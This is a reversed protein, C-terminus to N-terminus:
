SQPTGASAVAQVFGTGPAGLGTMNDYGPGTSLTVDRTACNGSGNCYTEPGEYNIIRTEVLVGDAANFDNGYDTRAEAAPTSPQTVDYFASPDSTYLSYLTPDLFGLPTGASQEADAFIGALTPSSLSTGGERFQNYHDTNNPFLETEGMLFGNTPDAYASIDPVVRTPVGFIPLNEDAVSAPVVPVQWSPENYYYSAGGGSGYDYAAPLWTDNTSSTCGPLVGEWPTYCGFAKATSWGYEALRQGNSGIELTTGGVATVYPSSPPYDPAALGSIAFNDGDDGSSFLVSIGEAAAQMFVDDYATKTAADDLLDGLTDGWSDTIVTALQGDVVTQLSGLLGNVCDTAGVYLINAGPATAHVSEVDLSQESFWGNADCESEDDYYPPLVASFQSAKLVHSPDNLQSYEVADSYLWPSAYADIIAVTVGAGDDGSSVNGDIGYASRVQSPTYGCTAWPMPSSYGPYAPLQAALKAGFYAGCPKAVEFANPPPIPTGGNNAVTANSLTSAQAAGGSGPTDIAPTALNETLGTAGVVLGALSSPVTLDQDVTRLVKGDFSRESLTTNFAQEVTSAPASVQITTGDAAVSGVTIGHAQLWSTVTAVEAPTPSFRAEWQAATLYHRYASNGPTSIASVLAQAGAPDQLGLVIDFDLTSSGPVAGVVPARGVLPSATGQLVITGLSSAGAPAAGASIGLGGVLTVSALVAM